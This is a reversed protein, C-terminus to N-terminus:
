GEFLLNGENNYERGKGNREVNLYEGEFSLIGFYDYEKVINNENNLKFIINGSHDYINGKWRINNLYEGEFILKADDYEKGKGNRKGNLYEGEFSLDGYFNIINEEKEM